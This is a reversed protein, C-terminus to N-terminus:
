TADDGAHVDGRIQLPPRSILVSLPPTLVGTSAFFEPGNNTIDVFLNSKTCKKEYKPHTSRAWRRAWQLQEALQNAMNPRKSEDDWLRRKAHVFPTLKAWRPNRYRPHQLSQM